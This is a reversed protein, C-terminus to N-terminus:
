RLVVSKMSFAVHVSAPKMQMMLMQAENATLAGTIVEPIAGAGAAVLAGAGAAVVAGAGAGAAAGALQYRDCDGFMLGAEVGVTSAPKTYSYLLWLCFM